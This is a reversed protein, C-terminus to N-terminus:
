ATVPSQEINKPSTGHGLGNDIVSTEIGGIQAHNSVKDKWPMHTM